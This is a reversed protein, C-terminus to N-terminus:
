MLYGTFKGIKKNCCPCILFYDIKEDSLKKGLMGDIMAQVLPNEKVKEKKICKADLEFSAGCYGCEINMNIRNELGDFHRFM